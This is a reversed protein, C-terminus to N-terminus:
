NKPKAGVSADELGQAFAQYMEDHNLLVKLNADSFPFEDGNEDIITKWNKVRELLDSEKDDQDKELASSLKEIEEPTKLAGVKALVSKSFKKARARREARTRIKFLVPIRLVSIEGTNEDAKSLSVPWWVLGSNAFTYM